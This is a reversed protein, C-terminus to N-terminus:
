IRRGRQNHRLVHSWRGQGAPVLNKVLSYERAILDFIVLDESGNPNARIFETSNKTREDKYYLSIGRSFADAYLNDTIKKAEIEVEAVTRGNSLVTKTKVEYLKQKHIPNKM